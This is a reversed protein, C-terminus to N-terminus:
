GLTLDTDEELDLRNNGKAAYITMTGGVDDIAEHKTNTITVDVNCADPEVLKPLNDPDTYDKALLSTGASIANSESGNATLEVTVDSDFGDLEIIFYLDGSSVANAVQFVEDFKFTSNSNLGQADGTFIGADTFFLQLQGKGTEKAYRNDLATLEVFAKSDAALDVAFERDNVQSTSFAGSGIAAASGAALAGTGILFKRREM